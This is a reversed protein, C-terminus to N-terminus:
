MSYTFRTVPAKRRFVLPHLAQWVKNAHSRIPIPGILAQGMLVIVSADTPPFIEGETRFEFKLDHKVSKSNQASFASTPKSSAHLGSDNAVHEPDLSSADQASEDTNSPFQSPWTPEGADRATSEIFRHEPVAITALHDVAKANNNVDATFTYFIEGHPIEM